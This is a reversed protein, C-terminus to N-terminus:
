KSDLPRKLYPSDPFTSRVSPCWSYARCHRIELISMDIDSEYCNKCNVSKWVQSQWGGYLLLYIIIIYKFKSGRIIPLIRDDTIQLIHLNKQGERLEPCSNCVTPFLRVKAPTIRVPIWWGGRHPAILVWQPAKSPGALSPFPRGDFGITFSVGDEVPYLHDASEVEASAKLFFLWPVYLM